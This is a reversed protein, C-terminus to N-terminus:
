FSWALIRTIKNGQVMEITQVTKANVHKLADYCDKLTEKKSILTTFWLCQKAYNKSENIMTLIFQQEGGTCWLEAKQGGFNLEKNKQTKPSTHGKKSRNKALNNLKAQSTAKAEALSSHFPPNCMTLDFRDDAHIIGDFVHTPNPQHRLEINQALAANQEVIKEVNAISSKDIDSAVFKWGYIQIGLLPYIGNAGTGIDLVHIPNSSKSGKKLTTLLDSLYHIYDARGPIPPCLYGEPIDWYKIQYHRRLLALNLSKVANADSFDISKNGYPNLRVFKELSPSALILKEFDYGNRHLNHSHLGKKEIRKTSQTPTHSMTKKTPQMQDFAQQRKRKNYKVM